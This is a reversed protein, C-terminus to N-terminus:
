PTSSEDRMVFAPDYQFKQGGVSADVMLGQDAAIFVALGYHYDTRSASGATLAVATLQASMTFSGATFREFTAEDQFFIIERFYQGGFSFGLSAQSMSCYGIKVGRSFVEGRGYAGGVLLAGKTVEPLVAYAYSSDFYAQISPDTAKFLAIAREVKASLLDRSAIKEPRTACGAALVITSVLGVALKGKM